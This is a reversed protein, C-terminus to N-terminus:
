QRGLSKELDKCRAAFGDDEQRRSAARTIWRSVSSPHMGLVSALEGVGIGYREVGVVAIVERARALEQTKRPSALAEVEINVAEAARQVFSAADHEGRPM